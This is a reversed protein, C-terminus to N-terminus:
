FVFNECTVYNLLWGHLDTRGDLSDTRLALDDAPTADDPHDALVRLV